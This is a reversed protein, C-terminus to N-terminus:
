TESKSTCMVSPNLDSTKVNIKLSRVCKSAKRCRRFRNQPNPLIGKKVTHHESYPPKIGAFTAGDSWLTDVIHLQESHFIKSCNM